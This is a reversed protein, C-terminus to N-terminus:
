LFRAPACQLFLGAALTPEWGRGRDAGGLDADLYLAGWGDGIASIHLLVDSMGIDNIDLSVEPPGVLRHFGLPPFFASLAM